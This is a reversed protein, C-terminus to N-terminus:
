RAVWGPHDTDGGGAKKEGRREKKEGTQPADHPRGPPRAQLIALGEGEFPEDLPRTRMTQADPGLSDLRERVMLNRPYRPHMPALHWGVLGIWAPTLEASEEVEM